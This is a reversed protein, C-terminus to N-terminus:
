NPCAIENIYEEDPFKKYEVQAWGDLYEPLNARDILDFLEDQKRYFRIKRASDAPMAALTVKCIANITWHLGYVICYKIGNPFYKRFRPLISFIFNVDVDSLSIESANLVLAWSFERKLRTDVLNALHMAYAVLKDSNEKKLKTCLKPRLHILTIGDKDPLYPFMAETYVSSYNSQNFENIQTSKRWRYCEIMQDYAADLNNNNFNLFRSAFFDHSKVNAIDSEYYLSGNAQVEAFFKAKLQDLLSPNNPLNDGM